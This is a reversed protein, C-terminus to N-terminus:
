QYYEEPPTTSVYWGWQPSVTDGDAQNLAAELEGNDMSVDTETAEAEADLEGFSLNRPSLVRDRTPTSADSETSSCLDDTETEKRPSLVAFKEDEAAAKLYTLVSVATAAAAAATAVVPHQKVWRLGGAIETPTPFFSPVVVDSM